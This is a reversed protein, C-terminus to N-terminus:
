FVNKGQQKQEDDNRQMQGCGEGLGLSLNHAFGQGIAHADDDDGVRQRRHHGDLRVKQDAAVLRRRSKGAHRMRLLVHSEAAARAHGGILGGGDVRLQAALVVGVRLLVDRLVEGGHGCGIQVHRQSACAAQRRPISSECGSHACSRPAM